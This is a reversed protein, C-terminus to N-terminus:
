VVVLLINPRKDENNAASLVSSLVLVALALLALHSSNRLFSKHIMRPSREKQIM